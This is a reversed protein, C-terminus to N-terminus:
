VSEQSILYTTCDIKGYWLGRIYWTKLCLLSNYNTFYGDSRTKIRGGPTKLIKKLLQTIYLGRSEDFPRALINEM